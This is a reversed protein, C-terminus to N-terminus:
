PVIETAAAFSIQHLALIFPKTDLHNECIGRGCFRCAGVSTRHCHFCDM